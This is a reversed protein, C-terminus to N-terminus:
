YMSPKELILTECFIVFEKDLEEEFINNSNIKLTSQIEIAKKYYKCAIADNNQKHFISAMWVNIFFGCKKENAGLEIAKIGYFIAKKNDSIIAVHKYKDALEFALELTPHRTFEKEKESIDGVGLSNKSMFEIENFYPISNILILVFFFIAFIIILNKRNRKM